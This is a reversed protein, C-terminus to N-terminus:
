VLRVGASESLFLRWGPSPSRRFRYPSNSCWVLPFYSPVVGEIRHGLMYGTFGQGRLSGGIYLLGRVFQLPWPLRAMLKIAPLAWQPVTSNLQAMELPPIPGAQFQSAALIGAYLALPIAVAALLRPGRWLALGYGIAVLPLLTFKTLVAILLALTMVLLRLTRPFALLELGRLRVVISWFRLPSPSSSLATASSPRELACCAALVLAISPGFLQRSWHWTLFVILLPFVIFPLRTYFLPPTSSHQHPWSTGASSIPM